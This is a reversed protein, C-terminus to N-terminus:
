NKFFLFKSLMAPENKRQNIEWASVSKKLTGQALKTVNRATPVILQGPM